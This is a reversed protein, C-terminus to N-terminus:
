GGNWVVWRWGKTCIAYHTYTFPRDFRGDWYAICRFGLALCRTRTYCAPSLLRKKIAERNLLERQSVGCTVRESQAERLLPVGARIRKHVRGTGPWMDSPRHRIEPGSFSELDSEPTM